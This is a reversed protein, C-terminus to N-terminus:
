RVELNFNRGRIWSSLAELSMKRSLSNLSVTVLLYCMCLSNVFKVQLKLLSFHVFGLQFCNWIRNSAELFELCQLVKRM